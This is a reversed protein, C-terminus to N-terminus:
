YSNSIVARIRMVNQMAPTFARAVLRAYKGRSIRRDLRLSAAPTFLGQNGSFQNKYNNRGDAQFVDHSVPGRDAPLQAVPLSFSFVSKQTLAQVEGDGM